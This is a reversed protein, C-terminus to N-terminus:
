PSELPPPPFGRGREGWGASPEAFGARRLAREILLLFLGLVVTLTAIYAAHSPFVRALSPHVAFALNVNEDIPTVFRSLVHLALLTATAYLWAGRPIGLRRAGALGCALAGLHTVPSTPIFEGGSALDIAWMFLGLTQLFVGVANLAASRALLGVGTAVAGVHCCWLLNAARHHAIHWAGHLAYCALAGLGLLTLERGRTV